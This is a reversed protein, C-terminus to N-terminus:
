NKGPLIALSDFFCAAFGINQTFGTKKIPVPKKIQRLPFSSQQM